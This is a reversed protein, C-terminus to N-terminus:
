PRLTEYTPADEAWRKDYSNERFIWMLLNSEDDGKKWLCYEDDSFTEIRPNHAMIASDYQEKRGDKYEVTAVEDGSLVKIDIRKIKKLGEETIDVGTDCCKNDYTLLCLTNITRMGAPIDAFVFEM